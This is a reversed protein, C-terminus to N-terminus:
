DITRHPLTYKFFSAGSYVSFEQGEFISGPGERLGAGNDIQNVTYFEDRDRELVSIIEDKTIVEVEFGVEGNVYSSGQRIRTSLSGEFTRTGENDEEWVVFAQEYNDCEWDTDWMMGGVWGWKKKRIHRRSINITHLTLQNTEEIDGDSDRRLYGDVRSVVLESGGGNGTLSVLADMQNTLQYWGFHVQHIANEDCGSGGSGGSGGGGPNDPDGDPDDGDGGGPPPPFFSSTTTVVNNPDEGTIIVTPNNEAFDEDILIASYGGAHPQYGMAKDADVIAPLLSPYFTALQYDVVYPVYFYLEARDFYRDEKGANNYPKTVYYLLHQYNASHKGTLEKQIYGKIAGEGEGSLGSKLYLPSSEPHMVDWLGVYHDYYYDTRALAFLEERVADNQFMGKSLETLEIIANKLLEGYQNDVLDAPSRQIVAENDFSDGAPSLSDKECSQTLLLAAIALTFLVFYKKM